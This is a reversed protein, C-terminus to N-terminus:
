APVEAFARLAAVRARSLADTPPPTDQLLERATTRLLHPDESAALLTTSLGDDTYIAVWGSRM